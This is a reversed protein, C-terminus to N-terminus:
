LYQKSKPSNKFSSVLSRCKKILSRFLDTQLIFKIDIFWSLKSKQPFEYSCAAAYLAWIPHCLGKLTARWHFRINWEIYCIWQWYCSSVIKILINTFTMIVFSSYICKLCNWFWWCNKQSTSCTSLIYSLLFLLLLQSHLQPAELWWWDLSSHHCCQALKSKFNM